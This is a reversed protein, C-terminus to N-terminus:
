ITLVLFQQSLPNLNELLKPVLDPGYELYFESFNKHREQLSENPFLDTKLATIRKVYDNYKRKQAKLLRKELHELGKIQKHQQANVAGEFSADTKNSLELLAKFQDKLHNKQESFDIKIESLEKIKKNILDPTKNFFEQISINLKGLKKHQKESLLLVSNRLLLIPFPVEFHEFMQKLQMWYAIEGGGGIYCLNPLIVEQYLPRLIVNPSFREPHKNLKEIIEEKTFSITSDIVQYTSDKLEIRNRQEDKLYFLNINRPYATQPYNNHKLIKNTEDVNNKAKSLLLEDKMKPIFLAKLASDDADLIVLGENKFLENALVRTANTLNENELYAKKFISKLNESKETNGFLTKIVQYVVEIGENKLKGVAGSSDKAWKIKQDKFNFYCIEDFDHDETAMWYIPVFNFEPYEKKLIKTLNITSIIKYLFYLPGTFLNLQHGTTITFTNHKKLLEINKETKKSSEVSTYQEKLVSVLTNRNNQSFTKNQIQTEFNNLEPFLGYFEKVQEKQELYDCIFSSFYGTNKFPIHESTM